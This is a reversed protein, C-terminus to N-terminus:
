QQAREQRGPDQRLRHHRHPAQPRRAPLLLPRPAARSGPGVGRLPGLDEPFM